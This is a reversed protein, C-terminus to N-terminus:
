SMEFDLERDVIRSRIPLGPFDRSGGFQIRVVVDSLIDAVLVVFIYLVHYPLLSVYNTRMPTACASRRTANVGAFAVFTRRASPNNIYEPACGVQRWIPPVPHSEPQKECDSRDCRERGVIRVGRLKKFFM